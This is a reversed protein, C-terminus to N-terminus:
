RSWTGTVLACTQRRMPLGDSQLPATWYGRQQTLRELLRQGSYDPLPLSLLSLPLALPLALSLSLSLSLPSLSSLLRERARSSACRATNYSLFFQVM